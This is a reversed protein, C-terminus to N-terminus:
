LCQCTYIYKNKIIHLNEAPIGQILLVLAATSSTANLTVISLLLLLRTINTGIWVSKLLQMWLVSLFYLILVM